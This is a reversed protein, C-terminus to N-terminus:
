SNLFAIELAAFVLYFVFLYFGEKKTIKKQTKMFYLLLAASLFMSVGTLYIIKPNFSFPHILAIIGIVITADSLVNGLVDGLALGSRNNKVAKISFFLEPLTTGLAIFFVGILTPNINFFKAIEIGSHVVFHASGLLILMSGILLVLNKYSFKYRTGKFVLREKKLLFYYFSSGTILLIIGELRSFYGNIGFILPMIMAVLYLYDYKLIVNDVKIEKQTAFIVIAFVLSLDAVNSGILTGLGISPVGQIASLISIFFEPLISIFSVVIFGTLYRSLRLDKAIKSSYSIAYNSSKILFVLSIFFIVLYM